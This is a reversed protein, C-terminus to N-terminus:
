LSPNLHESRAVISASILINNFLSKLLFNVSKCDLNKLASSVAPGDHILWTAVRDRELYMNHLLLLGMVGFQSKVQRFYVSM